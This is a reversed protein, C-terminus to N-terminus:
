AERLAETPAVGAARRAPLWSALVVAGGLVLVIGAFTAPDSPAVDFLLSRLVRTAALAAVLGIAAGAGAIAVGGRVILRVVDRRTAGLAVRVGIERTRQAVAFSVVGYVGLTALVLAVAAFLALLTAGFRQFAMMGAIRAEMTRVDFAPTGPAAEALAERVARVHNLPDDATRVFLMARGNPSQAYNLYVDPRPLSDVTGYRVDGVIGVVTATDEWFGGQGVSVPRGIPDENPFFTRAARESLLVVKRAGRRDAATFARGRVLPVGMVAPWDPTIWHVGIEPGEDGERPAPRDRRVLVTGNCGGNFPPCDQLAVGTVGPLAGVRALLRDFVVAFSDRPAVARPDFRLTLMREPRMGPDVALLKGLSRLMLGSGALLVLALAVEMAALVARTSARQGPRGGGPAGVRLAGTLSPRTAQLAPVLGFLVGTGLALAAAFALARRDLRIATFSVTKLDSYSALRLSQAPDVASLAHVGWWAVLVGAAGGVVALLVSETLLQRVLRGRGAGMALRVAIERRRGAARVLLLNAVNACTVLLVLGVAGSLVFLARRLAPDVRTADLPRAAAAHRASADAPDPYAANVRAGLTRVAAAAEAESVGPRRRAVLTYGHSWPEEIEASPQSLIPVLVDAEGTLGRFGAPLVGVVTYPQGAVTIARGIAAPDADYRTRWLQESIIAVRPGDAARDEEPLLNRGVLPAVGLTPLYRADVFEGRVREPDGSGVRITFPMGQYLTLDAFATQADRLVRFKPYSWPADDRAPQDARAPRTLSLQMLEHPAAFPLQRLLLADVASYIAVNAGLGIALTLVAVLTFGPRARLTRVAFRVDQRLADVRAPDGGDVLRERVRAPDGLRRRAVRRAEDPTAGAHRQQMEELALHFGLEEDMERRWGQRDFLARRLVGLRYRMADVVSM